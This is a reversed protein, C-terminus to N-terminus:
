ERGNATLFTTGSRGKLSEWTEGVIQGFADAQAELSRLLAFQNRARDLNHRPRKTKFYVDGQLYDTLFRIGVEYTMVQGGTVLHARETDNLTAGAGALFGEALAAFIGPRAAVLALDTEDELAANTATRVMDGFDYLSLGPM